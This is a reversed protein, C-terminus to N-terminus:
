MLGTFKLLLPVTFATNFGVCLYTLYFVPVLVEYGFQV